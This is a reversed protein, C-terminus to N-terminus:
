FYLMDPNYVTCYTPRHHVVVACDARDENGFLAATVPAWSLIQMILMDGSHNISRGVGSNMNCVCFIRERGGERRAM